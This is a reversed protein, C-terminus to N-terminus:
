ADPDPKAHTAIPEVDPDTVRLLAGSARDLDWGGVAPASM